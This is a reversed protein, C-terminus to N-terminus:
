KASVVEPDSNVTPGCLLHLISQASKEVELASFVWVHFSRSILGFAEEDLSAPSCSLISSLLWISRPVM